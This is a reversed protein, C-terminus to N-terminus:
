REDKQGAERCLKENAVFDWPKKGLRNAKLSVTPLDADTDGIRVMEEIYEYALKGAALGDKARLKVSGWLGDKDSIIVDFTALGDSSAVAGGDQMQADSKM